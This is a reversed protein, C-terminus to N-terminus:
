SGSNKLRGFEEKVTEWTSFIKEKLEDAATGTQPKMSAYTGIDKLLDSMMGGLAAIEPDLLPQIKTVSEFAAIVTARDASGQSLM